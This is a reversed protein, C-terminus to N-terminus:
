GQQSMEKGRRKSSNKYSIVFFQKGHGTMAETEVAHTEEYAAKVKKSGGKEVARLLPATDAAIEKKRM